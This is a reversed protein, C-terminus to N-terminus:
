RAFTPVYQEKCLHERKHVLKLEMPSGAQTVPVTSEQSTNRGKVHKVMTWLCFKYLTDEGKKM